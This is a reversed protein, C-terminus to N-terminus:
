PLSKWSLFNYWWYIEVSMSSRSEIIIEIWVRCYSIATCYRRWDNPEELNMKMSYHVAGISSSVSLRFITRKSQWYLIQYKIWKREIQAKLAHRVWRFSVNAVKGIYQLQHLLFPSIIKVFLKEEYEDQLLCFAAFEIWHRNILMPYNKHFIVRKPVPCFLNDRCSARLTQIM